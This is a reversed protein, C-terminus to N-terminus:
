RMAAPASGAILEGDDGSGSGSREGMPLHLAAARSLLEGTRVVLSSPPLPFSHACPM